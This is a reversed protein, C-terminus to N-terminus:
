FPSRSLVLVLSHLQLSPTTEVIVDNPRFRYVLTALGVEVDGHLTWGLTNPQEKLPKQQRERRMLDIYPVLRQQKYASLYWGKWLDTWYKKEPPKFQFSKSIDLYSDYIFGSHMM